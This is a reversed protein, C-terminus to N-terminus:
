AHQLQVGTEVDIDATGETASADAGPEPMMQPHRALRVPVDVVQPPVRHKFLDPVAEITRCPFVPPRSAQARLRARGCWKRAEPCRIATAIGVETEEFPAWRPIGEDM